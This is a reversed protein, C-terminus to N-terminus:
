AYRIRGGSRGGDSTAPAVNYSAACRRHHVDLKQKGNHFLVSHSTNCKKIRAIRKGVTNLETIQPPGHSGSHTPHRGKTRKTDLKTKRQILLRTIFSRYEAEGDATLRLPEAM